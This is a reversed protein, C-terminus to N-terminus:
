WLSVGSCFSHCSHMCHSIDLKEFTPVMVEYIFKMNTRRPSWSRTGAPKRNWMAGGQRLGSRSTRRSVVSFKRRFIANTEIKCCITIFIAPTILGSPVIVHGVRESSTKSWKDGWLWFPVTQYLLGHYVNANCLRSLTIFISTGTPGFNSTAKRTAIVWIRAFRNHGPAPDERPILQFRKAIGLM